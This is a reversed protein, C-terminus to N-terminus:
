APPPAERRLVFGGELRGGNEKGRDIWWRGEIETGADSVRGRYHVAHAPITEGVFQDGVLYGTRYEGEYTKLFYV